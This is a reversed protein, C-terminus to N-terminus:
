RSAPRGRSKLKLGIRECIKQLRRMFAPRARTNTKFSDAYTESWHLPLKPVIYDALDGMTRLEATQKMREIELRNEYLASYIPWADTRAPPPPAFGSALQGKVSKLGDVFGRFFDEVVDLPMGFIQDIIRVYLGTVDECKGSMVADHFECFTPIKPFKGTLFCYRIEGYGVAYQPYFYGIEVGKRYPDSAGSAKSRRILSPFYMMTLAHGAKTAWPPPSDVKLTREPKRGVRPGQKSGTQKGRRRADQKKNGNAAM